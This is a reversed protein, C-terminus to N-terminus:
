RLDPSAARSLPLPTNIATKEDAGFNEKSEDKTVDSDGAESKASKASKPKNIDIEGLALRSMEAYKGNEIAMLEEHTGCEVVKGKELM